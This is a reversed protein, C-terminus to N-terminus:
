AGGGLRAALADEVHQRAAGDEIAAVVESMFGRALLALAADEGIGRSKLYFLADADPQGVASGHSCSVDDAFIELKPQSDAEADASLLLNKNVQRAVTKQAGPRVLAGGCFVGRSAGDLVGKYIESSVAEPAAHDVFARNDVHRKGDGYYLGCLSIDAGPEELSASIERRALRAGLDVVVSSVRSGRAQRIRTAAIHFAGASERQLACLRLNAGPGVVAETVANTLRAGGDDDLSEFSTLVTAASNAEASILARPHTASQSRGTAIFLLHIPEPVVAGAPLHVFAGDRLFATNLATFADDDPSALSGLREQAPPVRYAIADALRGVVPVEGGRRLAGSALEAESAPETSLGPAYRGDVFTLRHVRPCPLEYPALDVSAGPDPEAPTFVSEAIPRVNTYKWPENGRRATPFGDREFAAFAGRRLDALWQPADAAGNREFARFQEAWATAANASASM